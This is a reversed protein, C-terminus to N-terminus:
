GYTIEGDEIADSVITLDYPGCDFGWGSIADVIGRKRDNCLTSYSSGQKHKIVTYIGPYGPARFKMGIYPKIPNRQTYNAM